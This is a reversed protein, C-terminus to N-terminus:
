PWFQDSMLIIDFSDMKASALRVARIRPNRRHLGIDESREYAASGGLNSTWLWRGRSPSCADDLYITSRSTPFARSEPPRRSGGAARCSRRSLALVIGHRRNTDAGTIM